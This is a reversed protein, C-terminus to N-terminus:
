AVLDSEMTRKLHVLVRKLQRQVRSFPKKEMRALKHITRGASFVKEVLHQDCPKLKGLHFELWEIQEISRKQEEVWEAVLWEKKDDDGEEGDGESSGDSCQETDTFNPEVEQQRVTRQYENILAGGIKISLWVPLPILNPNYVLIAECLALYAVSQAEDYDLKVHKRAISRALPMYQVALEQQETTMKEPPTSASPSNVCTM